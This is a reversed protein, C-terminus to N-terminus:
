RVLCATVKTPYSAFYLLQRRDQTEKFQFIRCRALNDAGIASRLEPMAALVSVGPWMQPWEKLVEPTQPLLDLYEPVVAVHPGAFRGHAPNAFRVRPYLRDFFKRQAPSAAAGSVAYLDAAPFMLPQPLGGMYYVVPLHRESDVWAEFERAISSNDALRRLVVSPAASALGVFFITGVLVITTGVAAIRSSIREVILAMAVVGFTLFLSVDIMTGQSKRHLFVMVLSTASVIQM